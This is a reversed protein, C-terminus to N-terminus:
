SAAVPKTVAIIQTGDAIGSESLTSPGDILFKGKVALMCTSGAPAFGSPAAALVSEKLKTTSWQLDCPVAFTVDGKVNRVRVTSSPKSETTAASGEKVPQTPSQAGPTPRPHGCAECVTATPENHLICMPCDWSELAQEQRAPPQFVTQAVAPASATAPAAPSVPAAPAAAQAAPTGSALQPLREVVCKHAEGCIHQHGVMTPHFMSFDWMERDFRAAGLNNRLRELTGVEDFFIATAEPYEQSFEAVLTEWRELLAAGQVEMVLRPPDGPGVGIDELLNQNVMNGIIGWILNFVPMEIYAPVGSVLFHRAGVRYLTQMFAKLVQAEHVGPNARLVEPTVAPPQGGGGLMGLMGGTGMLAEVMKQIFDNGGMHIIVLTEKRLLGDPGKPLQPSALARQGQGPLDRCVGGPMAFNFVRAGGLKPGLMEAWTPHAYSVWSDGFLLLNWNCAM